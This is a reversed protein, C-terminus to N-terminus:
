TKPPCKLPSLARVTHQEGTVSARITAPSIGPIGHPHHKLFNQASQSRNRLDDRFACLAQTDGQQNTSIQGALEFVQFDAYAAQGFIIILLVVLAKSRTV